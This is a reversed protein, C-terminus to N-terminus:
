QTRVVVTSSGCAYDEIRQKLHHRIPEPLSNPAFYGCEVIEHDATLVGGVQEAEFCIALGNEGPKSYLGVVRKLRIDLGTEEKVERIAAQDISEGPEMKGGPLSWYQSGYDQKVLLIGGEREIFVLAVVTICSDAQDFESM